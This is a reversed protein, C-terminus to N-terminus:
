AAGRQAMVAAAGPAPLVNAHAFGAAVLLAVWRRADAPSPNAAFLNDLRHPEDEIRLLVRGAPKIARVIDSLARAVLTDDGAIVSPALTIADLDADACRALTALPDGFAVEVGRQQAREALARNPEVGNAALKHARLAELWAGDGSGLDLVRAGPPLGAELRAAWDAHRAARAASEGADVDVAAALANTREREASATEELGALAAQLSAIWHNTAHVYHRLEVLEGATAENRSAIAESRLALAEARHALAESRGELPAIRGEVAAARGEMADSRVRLVEARQELEDFRGLIRRLNEGLAADRQDREVILGTIRIALEDLRREYGRQKEADANLRDHEAGLRNVAADLAVLRHEHAHQAGVAADFHAANMTDAARQHRLLLPLGSFALSWEVLYGVVPVRALKALAYRPLLGSVRTGIRKGEPSWRLNGLVEAKGAGAGLLRLQMAMGADDPARKLLARFATDVFAVYNAGTLEQIAYNIRERQIGDNSPPQVPQAPPDRRPLPNRQRALDAEVRIEAKVRELYDGKESSSVAKCKWQISRLEPM